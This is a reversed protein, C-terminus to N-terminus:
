FRFTVELHVSDNKGDLTFGSGFANSFSPHTSAYRLEAGVLPTFQWGAGLTWALTTNSESISNVASFEVKTNAAGAGVVVYFGEAKQNMYYLYDAGVFLTSVKGDIGLGPFLKDSSGSLHSYDLRPRLTHGGSFDIPVSLGINFGMNSDVVDKASITNGNFDSSGTPIVVGAQLGFHVGQAAAPFALLALAPLLAHLRM